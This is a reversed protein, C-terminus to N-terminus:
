LEECFVCDPFWVEPMELKILRCFELSIPKGMKPCDVKTRSGPVPDRSGHVTFRSGHVESAMQKLWWTPRDVHKVGDIEDSQLRDEIEKVMADRTM